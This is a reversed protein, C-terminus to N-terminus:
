REWKTELGLSSQAPNIAGKRKMTTLLRFSASKATGFDLREAIQKVSLTTEQRLRQAIQVKGPDHKRRAALEGEPWGLRSLEEAVIREARAQASELRLPGYHHEGVQGEIAELTQQKFEGSGLCWGRRLAKLSAEDAPELRRAEM